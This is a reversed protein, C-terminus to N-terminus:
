NGPIVRQEREEIGLILDRPHLLNRALLRACPASSLGAKTEDTVIDILGHRRSVLNPTLQASTPLPWAADKRRRIEAHPLSVSFHHHPQLIGATAQWM